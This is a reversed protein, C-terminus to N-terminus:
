KTSKNFLKPLFYKLIDNEDFDEEEEETEGLKTYSPKTNNNNNNMTSNHPMVALTSFIFALGTFIHWIPHYTYYDQNNANANVVYATIACSIALFLYILRKIRNEKIFLWRHYNYALVIICNTVLIPIVTQTMSDLYFFVLILSIYNIVIKYMGGFKIGLHITFGINLMLISFLYDSDLMFSYNNICDTGNDCLHYMGSVFGISLAIFIEFHWTNYNDYVQKSRIILVIAVIIYIINSLVVFHWDAM